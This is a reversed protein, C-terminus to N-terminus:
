LAARIEKVEAMVRFIFREVVPVFEEWPWRLSELPGNRLSMWRLSQMAEALRAPANPARLLEERLRRALPLVDEPQRASFPSPSPHRRIM